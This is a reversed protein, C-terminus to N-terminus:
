KKLLIKFAVYLNILCIVLKIRLDVQAKMKGKVLSLVTISLIALAKILKLVKKYKRLTKFTDMMTPLLSSLLLGLISLLEEM